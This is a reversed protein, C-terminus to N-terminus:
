QSFNYLLQIDLYKLYFKLIKLNSLQQLTSIKQCVVKWFFQITSRSLQTEIATNM